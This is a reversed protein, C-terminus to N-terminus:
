ISRIFHCSKQCLISALCIYQRRRQGALPKRRQSGPFLFIHIHKHHHALNQHQNIKPIFILTYDTM